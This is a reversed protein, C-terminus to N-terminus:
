FQLTCSRITSYCQKDYAPKSFCYHIIYIALLSKQWEDQLAHLFQPFSNILQVQLESLSCCWKVVPHISGHLIQLVHEDYVANLLDLYGHKIIVEHVSLSKNKHKSSFLNRIKLLRQQRPSSNNNYIGKDLRTTFFCWLGQSNAQIVM